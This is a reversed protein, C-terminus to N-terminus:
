LNTVLIHTPNEIRLNGMGLLQHVAETNLPFRLAKFAYLLARDVHQHPHPITQGLTAPGPTVWAPGGGNCSPHIGPDVHRPIVTLILM